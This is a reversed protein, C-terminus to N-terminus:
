PYLPAISRAFHRTAFGPTELQLNMLELIDAEDETIYVLQRQNDKQM